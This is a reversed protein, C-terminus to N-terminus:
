CIKLKASKLPVSSALRFAPQKSAMHNTAALWKEVARVPCINSDTQFVDVIVGAGNKSEKPAKVIVQVVKKEMGDEVVCIDERLTSYDPDFIGSNQV